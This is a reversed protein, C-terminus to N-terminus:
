GLWDHDYGRLFTHFNCTTQASTLVRIYTCLAAKKIAFSSFRSEDRINSSVITPNVASRPSTNRRCMRSYNPLSLGARTSKQHTFMDGTRSRHFRIPALFLLSVQVNGLADSITTARDRSSGINGLRGVFGETSWSALVSSSDDSGVCGYDRALM